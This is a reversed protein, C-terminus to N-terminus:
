TQARVKIILFAIGYSLGLVSLLYLPIFILAIAANADSAIWTSYDHFFYYEAALLFVPPIIIYEVKHTRMTVFCYIIGPLLHFFLIGLGFFTLVSAVDGNPIEMSNIIPVLMVVIGFLNVGVCLFAQQWKKLQPTKNVYKM